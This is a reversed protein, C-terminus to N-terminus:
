DSCSQAPFALSCSVQGEVGEPHQRLAEADRRWLSASDSFCAFHFSRKRKFVAKHELVTQVPSDGFKSLYAVMLRYNVPNQNFDDEGVKRESLM